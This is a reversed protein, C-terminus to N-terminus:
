KLEVILEPELTKGDDNYIVHYKAGEKLVLGQTDFVQEDERVRFRVSDNLKFEITDIESIYKEQGSQKDAVLKKGKITFYTGNVKTIEGTFKRATIHRSVPREYNPGRDLDFSKGKTKLKIIRLVDSENHLPMKIESIALESNQTFKLTEATDLFSAETIESTLGNLLINGGNWNWLHLYVHNEDKSQTFSGWSHEKSYPSGKTKYVAEKNLKMWEGIDHLRVQDETPFRGEPTPGINLLFNSSRCTSFSLLRIVENSPKWYDDNKDYGWNLRMTMISEMYGALGPNVITRDGVNKYDGLGNGIRGNIICNPQYERVLAACMENYEKHNKNPTDFWILDIQGYNTLLEKIQTKALKMYKKPVPDETLMARYHNTWDREHSYYFGVRMDYKNCAEVFEKILDRKVASHDVTDWTTTKSDFLAYGDHHKSTLVIYTMGADKAMKVWAEPNYSSPNWKKAAESYVEHPINSTLYIWEASTWGMEKGYDINNYEGGFNSYIGWHIFMGLRGDDWWQMRQHYAQDSEQAISSLFTLLLYSLLVTIKTNKMNKKNM